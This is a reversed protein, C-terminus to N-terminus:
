KPSDKRTISLAKAVSETELFQKAQEPHQAAFARWREADRALDRQTTAFVGQQQQLQGAIGGGFNNIVGPDGYKFLDAHEQEKLARDKEFQRLRQTEIDFGAREAGAIKALIEAFTSPKSSSSV